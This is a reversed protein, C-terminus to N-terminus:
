CLINYSVIDLSIKVIHLEVQPQHMYIM